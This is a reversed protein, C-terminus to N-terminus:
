VRDQGTLEDEIQDSHRAITLVTNRLSEAELGAVPLIHQVTLSTGEQTESFKLQGVPPKAVRALLEAESVGQVIGCETYVLVQDPALGVIPGPALLVQQKRDGVLIETRVYGPEDWEVSDSSDQVAQRALNLLWRSGGGEGRDEEGTATGAVAEAGGITTAADGDQSELGLEREWDDVLQGCDLGTIATLAAACEDILNNENRMTEVLVPAAAEIRAAALITIAAWRQNLPAEVDRLVGLLKEVPCTELGILERRAQARTRHDKLREVLKEVSAEEAM